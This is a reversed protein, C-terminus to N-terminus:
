CNHCSYCPVHHHIFVTQGPRFNKINEGVEMIEGAPEHGIKSSKMGYNGFIKELDSGCIGCTKMRVLVDNKSVKPLDVNVIKVIKNDLIATKM